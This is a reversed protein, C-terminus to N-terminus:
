EENVEEVIKKAEAVDEPKAYLRIQNIRALNKVVSSYKSLPAGLMSKELVQIDSEIKYWSKKATYEDAVLNGLREKIRRLKDIEERSASENTSHVERYHERRALRGGHEGGEGAHLCGLVKWDDWELYADLEEGEPKPFVGGPLM